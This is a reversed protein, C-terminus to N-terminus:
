NHADICLRGPRGTASVTLIGWRIARDSFVEVRSLCRLMQTSEGGTNLLNELPGYYSSEATTAGTAHRCQMDTLYTETAATLNVVREDAEQIVVPQMFRM